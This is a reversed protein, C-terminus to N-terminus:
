VFINVECNSQLNFIDALFRKRVDAAQYEDLADVIVFVRSYMSIVSQLTKSIRDSDPRTKKNKHEDYLSKVIDPLSSRSQILQKLLSALLDETKQEDQRQYNCYLYAIGISKDSTFRTTLENVVISTLITKGAGPIGQCFLTKKSTEM